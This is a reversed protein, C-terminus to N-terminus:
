VYVDGETLGGKLTFLVQAYDSEVSGNGPSEYKDVMFKGNIDPYNTYLETGRSKEEMLQVEFQNTETRTISGINLKSFRLSRTDFQRFENLGWFNNEGNFFNYDLVREERRNYLPQLNYLANDWRYNQRIVVKVDWPNSALDYNSYDISFDVQQAQSRNEVVTSFRINPIINIQNQYVMFRRTIVLDDQNGDRYVKIIYNGTSKVKPVVYKYHIYKTYTNFSYSYNQIPFENYDSLYQIESLTSRSWDANCHFIKVYYRNLQGGLEDFELTLPTTQMLEIVPPRLQDNPLGSYTYFLVTKIGEEYTFDEPVYQKQALLSSFSVLILFVLAKYGM